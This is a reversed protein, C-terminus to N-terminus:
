SHSSYRLWVNTHKGTVKKKKGLAAPTKMTFLKSARILNIKSEAAKDWQWKDKRTEQIRNHAPHLSSFIAKHFLDEDTAKFAHPMQCWPLYSPTCHGASNCLSTVEERLGKGCPWLIMLTPFSSKLDGLGVMSEGGGHRSFWSEWQWMEGKRSCTWPHYSQVLHRWLKAEVRKGRWSPQGSWM